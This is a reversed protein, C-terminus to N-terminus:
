RSGPSAPWTLDLAPAPVHVCLMVGTQGRGHHRLGVLVARGRRRSLAAAAREHRVHRHAGHAAHLDHRHGDAGEDGREAPEVRTSLHADLIGTVRDQFFMAEDALRVLHDYVDRFRYAIEESILTSSAARSGASSTASRCSSAACRRSTANSTSSTATLRDGPERVGGTELEDLREELEDVEPRYNDVMTDVIRHMLAGPGRRARSTASHLDEGIKRSASRQGDHVTVLYNPGLFFDVDHTRLRAARAQLRHRAPRSLSLRRLVRGESPPDRSLADEVSLQHFHFVDRLVANKPRRNMSDVWVSARQRCGPWATWARDVLRTPGRTPTSPVILGRGEGAAGGAGRGAAGGSHSVALRQRLRARGERLLPDVVPRRRARRLHRDQPGARRRGKECAWRWWSASARTDITAFPDKELIKKDQYVRLFKGIDDRSFGFTMQTLDNTGFSFFQAEAAIEDATLAGRPVEIMTGVLYKVKVGQEKM